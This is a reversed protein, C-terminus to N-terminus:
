VSQGRRRRIRASVRDLIMREDNSLSAIGGCHLKKLIEDARRDEAEEQTSEEQLREGQKENLWQSYVSNENASSFDITAQGPEEFYSDYGMMPADEWEDNEVATEILYSYRAAFILTIGSLAVLVWASDIPGPHYDQLMLSLGIMTFAVAHGLVMIASESRSKPLDVNLSGILARVLSAGDFPYCPILNVFMLQFNLWTMIQVISIEWNSVVFEYPRFPNTLQVLTADGSRLLLTAGLAFIIGNVFPGAGFVTGRVRSSQPLVYDPNGGWPMLVVSNVHGGLNVIAFLHALEHIVISTLLLCATVLATGSGIQHTSGNFTLEIGFIAALFLFLLLHVRVPVGLWRGISASWGFNETM